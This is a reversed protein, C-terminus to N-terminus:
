HFTANMTKKYVMKVTTKEYEGNAVHNQNDICNRKNNSNFKCVFKAFSLRLFSECNKEKIAIIEHNLLCVYSLSQMYIKEPEEGM